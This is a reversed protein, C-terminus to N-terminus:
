SELSELYSSKLIELIGFGSDAARDRRVVSWSKQFVHTRTRLRVPMSHPVTRSIGTKSNSVNYLIAMSYLTLLDVGSNGSTAEKHLIAMSCLGHLDAM